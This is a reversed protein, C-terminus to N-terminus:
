DVLLFLWCWSCDNKNFKMECFSSSNGGGFIMIVINWLKEHLMRWFSILVSFNPPRINKLKKSLLINGGGNFNEKVQMRWVSLIGSYKPPRIKKLKQPL